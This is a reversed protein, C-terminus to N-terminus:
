VEKNDISRVREWKGLMILFLKGLKSRHLRGLGGRVGRVIVEGKEDFGEVEYVRSNIKM